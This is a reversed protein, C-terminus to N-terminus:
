VAMKKAGGEKRAWLYGFSGPKTGNPFRAQLTPPKRAEGMGSLPWSEGNLGWQDLQEGADPIRNRNNKKGTQKDM